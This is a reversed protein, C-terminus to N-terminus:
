EAPLFYAVNAYVDGKDNPKSNTIKARCTQGIMGETTLSELGLANDLSRRLKAHITCVTPNPHGDKLYITFLENRGAMEHEDNIQLRIVIFHKDEKKKVECGMITVPYIGEPLLLESQLERAEERSFIEM